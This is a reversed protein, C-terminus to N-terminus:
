RWAPPRSRRAPGARPCRRPVSGRRRMWTTTGSTGEDMAESVGAPTAAVELGEADGAALGAVDAVPNVAVLDLIDGVYTYIKDSAFRKRTNELLTPENLYVLQCQDPTDKGVNVHFCEEVPVTKTQSKGGNNCEVTAKKGDAEISVVHGVNYLDEKAVAADKIWVAQGEKLRTGM